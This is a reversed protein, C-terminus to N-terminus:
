EQDEPRRTLAEIRNGDPDRVFAAHYNPTSLHDIM